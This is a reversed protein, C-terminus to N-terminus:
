RTVTHNTTNLHKLGAWEPWAFCATMDKDYNQYDFSDQVPLICVEAMSTPDKTHVTSAM